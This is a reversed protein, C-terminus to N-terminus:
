ADPKILIGSFFTTMSNLIHDGFECGGVQVRDGLKLHFGASASMSYAASQDTQPDTYIQIATNGNINVNCYVRDINPGYNKTLTIAFWYQGPIRCTFVGSSADYDGGENLLVTPFSIDYTGPITVRGTATFLSTGPFTFCLVINRKVWVLVIRICVISYINLVYDMM